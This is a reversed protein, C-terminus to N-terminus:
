RRRREGGEEAGGGGGCILLGELREQRRVVVCRRPIRTIKPPLSTAPPPFPLCLPLFRLQNERKPQTRAPPSTSLSNKMPMKEVEGSSTESM